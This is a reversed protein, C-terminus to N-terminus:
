LNSLQNLQGQAKLLELEAKRFNLLERFYNLQAERLANEADLLDSLSAVNEKYLLNTQDYVDQALAKNELQTKVSELGNLLQEKANAIQAEEARSNNLLDLEIKEIDILSQQVKNRKQFGDFIPVQLKVGIITQQFWPENGNLFNFENRQAQWSQQGFAVISPYYGANINAKNLNNLELQKNLLQTNISEKSSNQLANLSIDALKKDEKLIIQDSIPMGILLKLYNKQLQNANKLSQLQTSLNAKNVRLRNFDNQTIMDNEFQSKMLEELKILKDLNSQLGDIQAQIELVQYFAKSVQYVVDEETSIKLLRYMDESSKAAQLGILFSQNYIIQSVEFGGSMIHNTGFQVPIQVGPQGLIEGPLLQTPINPFNQYQGNALIQPLGTARVEKVAYDAQKQDLIAKQIDISNTLAYGITQQITLEHENNQASLILPNLYGFLMIAATIFKKM